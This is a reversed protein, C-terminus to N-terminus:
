YGHPFCINLYNVGRQANAVADGLEGSLMAPGCPRETGKTLPSLTLLASPGWSPRASPLPEQKEAGCGPPAAPLTEWEQQQASQKTGVKHMRSCCLGM